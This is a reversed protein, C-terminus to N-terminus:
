TLSLSLTLLISLQETRSVKCCLILTIGQFCSTWYRRIFHRHLWSLWSFRSWCKLYIEFRFGRGVVVRHHGVLRDLCWFQAGSKPHFAKETMWVVLPGQLNVRLTWVLKRHDPRTPHATTSSVGYLQPGVLKMIGSDRKGLPGHPGLKTLNLRMIYGTRYETWYLFHNGADNYIAIGFPHLLNGHSGDYVLQM